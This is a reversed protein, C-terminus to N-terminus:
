PRPQSAPYKFGLGFPPGAPRPRFRPRARGGLRSRSPSSDSIQSQSVLVAPASNSDSQSVIELTLLRRAPAKGSTWRDSHSRAKTNNIKVLATRVFYWLWRWGVEERRKEEEGGEGEGGGRGERVTGQRRLRVPVRGGWSALYRGTMAGRFVHYSLGSGGRLLPPRRGRPTVTPM